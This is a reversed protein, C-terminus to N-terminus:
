GTPGANSPKFYRRPGGQRRMCNWRWPRAICRRRWISSMPAAKDRGEDVHRSVLAAFPRPGPEIRHPSRGALRRLRDADPPASPKRRGRIRQGTGFAEITVGHRLRIANERWVPSTGVAQPYGAALRPNDQLETKLNDLHAVAQHKTDSVIWIYPEHGEVAARLVFALTAITSKAGGRPGVVNLKCGREVRM